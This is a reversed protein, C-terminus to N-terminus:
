MNGNDPDKQHNETRAVSVIGNFIIKTHYLTLKRFVTPVTHNSYFLILENCLYKKIKRIVQFAFLPSKVACHCLFIM